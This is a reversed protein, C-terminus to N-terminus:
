MWAEEHANSLLFGALHAVVQPGLVEPATLHLHTPAVVAPPEVSAQEDETAPMLMCTDAAGLQGASPDLISGVRGHARNARQIRGGYAAYSCDYPNACMACGMTALLALGGVVVLACRM